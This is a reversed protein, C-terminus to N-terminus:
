LCILNTCVYNPNRVMFKLDNYSPEFVDKNILIPGNCEVFKQLHSFVYFGMSRSETFEQFGNEAVQQNYFCNRLDSGQQFKNLHKFSTTTPLFDPSRPLHPLVEYDLEKLKQLTPQAVHPWINDYLIPGMSNVLVLQLHQLKWYMEDVQQAYM